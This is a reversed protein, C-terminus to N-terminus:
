PSPPMEPMGSVKEVIDGEGAVACLALEPASVELEAEPKPGEAAGKMCDCPDPPRRKGEGEGKASSGVDICMDEVKGIFGPMSGNSREPIACTCGGNGETRGTEAEGPTERSEIPKMCCEREGKVTGGADVKEISGKLTMSRGGVGRGHDISGKLTM